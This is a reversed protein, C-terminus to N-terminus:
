HHCEPCQGALAPGWRRVVVLGEGTEEEGPDGQGALPATLDGQACEGRWKRGAAKVVPKSVRLPMGKRDKGWEAGWGGVCTVCVQARAWKSGPQSAREGPRGKLSQRGKKEPFRGQCEKKGRPNQM